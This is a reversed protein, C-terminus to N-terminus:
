RDAGIGGPTRRELTRMQFRKEASATFQGCLPINVLERRSDKIEREIRHVCCAANDHSTM